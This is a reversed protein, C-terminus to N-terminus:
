VVIIKNVIDVPIMSLNGDEDEFWRYSEIGLIGMFVVKGFIPHVEGVLWSKESM